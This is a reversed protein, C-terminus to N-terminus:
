IVGSQAAIGFEDSKCNRSKLHRHVGKRDDGDHFAMPLNMRDGDENSSYRFRVAGFHPQTDQRRDPAAAIPQNLVALKLFIDIQSRRFQVSGPDNKNQNVGIPITWCSQARVQQPSGQSLTGIHSDFNHDSM